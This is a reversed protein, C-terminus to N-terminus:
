AENQPPVYESQPQQPPFQVEPQQQQNYGNPYQQSPYGGQPQQQQNYGNYYQQPAYQGQPQQQQNYENPYQQPAYGGQPQQPPYGGQPQQPTYGGQPQQPAYGGQPQQPAYGGQPQQGSNGYEIGSSGKNEQNNREAALKHNPFVGMDYCVFVELWAGYLGSKCTFQKDKFENANLENLIENFDDERKKLYEKSDKETKVKFYFIGGIIIFIGVIIPITLVGIVIAGILWPLNSWAAGYPSYYESKRLATAITSIDQQTLRGNTKEEKYSKTDFGDQFENWEFYKATESSKPIAKIANGFPTTNRRRKRGFIGRSKRIEKETPAFM